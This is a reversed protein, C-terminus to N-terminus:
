FFKTFKLLKEFNEVFFEAFLSEHFFYIELKM